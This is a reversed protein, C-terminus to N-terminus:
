LVEKTNEISDADDKTLIPLYTYLLTGESERFGYVLRIHVSKITWNCEEGIPKSKPELIIPQARPTGYKQTLAEKLIIHNKHYLYEVAAQYFKNNKFYYRVYEVKVGGVSKLLRTGVRENKTQYDMTFRDRCETSSYGYESPSPNRLKCYEDISSGWKFGLFGDPEESALAVGCTIGLILLCSIVSRVDRRRQVVSPM